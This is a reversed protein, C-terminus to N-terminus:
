TFSGAQARALERWAAVEDSRGGLSSVEIAQAYGGVDPRALMAIPMLADGFARRALPESWEPAIVVLEDNKKFRELAPRLAQWEELTPARRSFYLHAGLEVLGLAPVLLWLYRAKGM